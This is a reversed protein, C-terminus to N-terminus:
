TYKLVHIHTYLTFSFVHVHIYMYMYQIYRFAEFLPFLSEGVAPLAHVNEGPGGALNIAPPRSLPPERPLPVGVPAAGECVKHRGWCRPGSFCRIYNVDIFITLSRLSSETRSTMMPYMMPLISRAWYRWSGRGKRPRWWSCLYLVYTSCTRTDTCTHTCTCICQIHVHVHM